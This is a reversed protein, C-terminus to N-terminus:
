PTALSWRQTARKLECARFAAKRAIVRLQERNTVLHKNQLRYIANCVSKTSAGLEAAIDALPVSYGLRTFVQQEFETLPKSRGRVGSRSRSSEKRKREDAYRDFTTIVRRMWGTIPEELPPPEPAKAGEAKCHICHCSVFLSDGHRECHRRDLARVSV